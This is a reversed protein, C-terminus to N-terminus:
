AGVCDVTGCSDNNNYQQKNGDDSGFMISRHYSHNAGLYDTGSVLFNFVPLGKAWVIKNVNEVEKTVTITPYPACIM